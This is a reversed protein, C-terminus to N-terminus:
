EEVRGLDREDDDDIGAYLNWFRPRGLYVEVKLTNYNGDLLNFKSEAGKINVFLLLVLLVLGQYYM